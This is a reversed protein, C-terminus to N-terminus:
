CSISSTRGGHVVRTSKVKAYWCAMNWRVSVLFESPVGMLGLM